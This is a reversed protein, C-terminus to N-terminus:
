GSAIGQVESKYIGHGAPCSWEMSTESEQAGLSVEQDDCSQGKRGAGGLTKGMTTFPMEMRRAASAEYGLIMRQEERM